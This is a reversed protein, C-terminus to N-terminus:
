VKGSEIFDKWKESSRCYCDLIEYMFDVEFGSIVENFVVVGKSVFFANYKDRSAVAQKGFGVVPSIFILRDGDKSMAIVSCDDYSFGEVLRGNYILLKNSNSMKSMPSYFCYKDLGDRGRLKQPIYHFDEILRNLVISFSYSLCASLCNLDAVIYEDGATNCLNIVRETLLHYNFLNDINVIRKENTFTDVLPLNIGLGAKIRFSGLNFREICDSGYALKLRCECVEDIDLYRM